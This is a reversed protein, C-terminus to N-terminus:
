CALRWCARRWPWQLRAGGDGGPRVRQAQEAHSVRLLLVLAVYALTGVLLGRGLGAWSDFLM